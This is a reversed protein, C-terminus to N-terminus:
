SGVVRVHQTLSGLVRMMVGEGGVVGAGPAGVGQGGGIRAEGRGQVGGVEVVRRWGSGGAATMIAGGHATFVLPRMKM